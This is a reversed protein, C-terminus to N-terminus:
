AYAQGASAISMQADYPLFKCELVGLKPSAYDQDEGTFGAFEADSYIWRFIETVRDRELWIVRITRNDGSRKEWWNYFYKHTGGDETTGKILRYKLTTEPIKRRGNSISAIRDDEPVEITGEEGLKFGNFAIIDKLKTVNGSMDEIEVKFNILLANIKSAM